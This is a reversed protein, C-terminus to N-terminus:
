DGGVSNGDDCEEMQISGDPLPIGELLGNGCEICEGGVLTPCTFHPEILQCDDACGDGSVTGCSGGHCVSPDDTCDAGENAGGICRSGDDCTERNSVIRDGCKFCPNGAPICVYGPERTLCDASCGDDGTRNGDDCAESSEQVGNGCEECLAGVTPCSFGDELECGESCGDGSADNGDDCAEGDDLEGNGCPVDVFSPPLGGDRRVSM